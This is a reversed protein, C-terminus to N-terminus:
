RIVKKILHRPKREIVQHQIRPRTFDLKYLDSREKNIEYKLSDTMDYSEEFLMMDLLEGRMRDLSSEHTATTIIITVGEHKEGFEAAIRTAQASTGCLVMVANPQEYIESHAYDM